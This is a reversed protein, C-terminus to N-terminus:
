GRIERELARLIENLLPQLNRRSTIYDDDLWTRVLLANQFERDSLLARHDMPELAVPVAGLGMSTIEVGDPRVMSANAIQTLNTRSSLLPLWVNNYFGFEQEEHKTLNELERRWKTLLRRLGEDQILDLDGGLILADLTATEFRGTVGGAWTVGSVLQDISDSPVAIPRQASVAMLSAASERLGLHFALGEALQGENEEFELQLSSLLRLEAGREQWDEYAADIAFALLISVIITAAEYFRNLLSRTRSM